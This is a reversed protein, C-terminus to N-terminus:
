DDFDEVVLFVKGIRPGIPLLYARIRPKKLKKVFSADLPSLLMMVEDVDVDFGVFPAPVGPVSPPLKVVGPVEIIYWTRGLGWALLSSPNLYGLGMGPTTVNYM